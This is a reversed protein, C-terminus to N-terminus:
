IKEIIRLKACTSRSNAQQEGESALMPKRNVLKITAKHHCVCVPLRKDCLCDTSLEQFLQKAIRDELSHFTIVCLRGKANLSEVMDRLAEELKDLESNVEIRIAQFTKTAPNKHAYRYKAPVSKEIIEKLDFTTEIPKLARDAVINKAISKAFDEEGYVFLIKVLKEYPYTNVVTYADLNQSLDMRMDLKANFRFSFGREANDLQYSSVGLDLLVGDVKSIKLEELIQKYNKFDNKVFVVKDGFPKLREKCVELAESDKDIGILKGTTLKEVIKASHGAGGMTGDVYVGSPKINLGNLCENLMIPTHNFEM